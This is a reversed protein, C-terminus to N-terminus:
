DRDPCDAPSWVATLDHCTVAIAGPRLAIEHTCGGPHPLVEDLIVVAPEPWEQPIDLTFASVGRYHVTLDDEHKWCNHRFGLELRMGAEDDGFAIRELTLDKVCRRGFDYHGADTAFAQAGAPLSPALVPLRRLYESPDLRVGDATEEIHVYKM